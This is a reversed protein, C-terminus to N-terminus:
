IKAQPDIEWLFPSVLPMQWINNTNDFVTLQVQEFEEPVEELSAIGKWYDSQPQASDHEDQM